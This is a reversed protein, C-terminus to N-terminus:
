YQWKLVPSHFAIARFCIMTACWNINTQYVPPLVAFEKPCHCSSSTCDCSQDLVRLFCSPHDTYLKYIISLEHMLYDPHTQSRLILLFVLNLLEELQSTYTFLSTIHM